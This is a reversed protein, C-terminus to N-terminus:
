GGRHCQIKGKKREMAAGLSLIRPFPSRNRFQHLKKEEDKEGMGIPTYDRKGRKRQSINRKGRGLLLSAFAWFTNYAGRGGVSILVGENRSGV